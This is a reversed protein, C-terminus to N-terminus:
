KTVKFCLLKKPGKVFLRGNALAPESRVPGALVAVRAKERYGEPTAEALILEGQENTIIFQGEVGILSACGFRDQAWRLKGTKAEVCVLRAEGGEQRGDIGYLYGDRLVPTNYHCALVGDGKWLDEIGDKKVRAALGGTGYSSSVFVFDGAVVPTAANVSENIRARWRRSFRVTGNAPDLSVLGTRTFFLAHRAGDITAAVPAAYSAGDDTAKWIEKGTKPDLGVIGAGPRGGINVMLVDSDLLLGAGVGFFGKSAKYDDLLDRHWLEKGTALDRCYLLGLASLTFVKDGAILPTTRPGDGKRFDDSYGSRYEAKWQLKGSAPDLCELVDNEGVAHFLLLRDGAVVPGSFGDGVSREWLLPPGKKPWEALLGAEASIGNRAPGLFQPWDAGATAILTALMFWVDCRSM